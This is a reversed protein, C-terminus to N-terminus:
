KGDRRQRLIGRLRPMMKRVEGALVQACDLYVQESGGVPDRVDGRHTGSFESIVFTRGAAEPWLDTVTQRQAETMTLILDASVTRGRTLARARRGRLVLGMRKAAAVAYRSVGTGAGADTGASSVTVNGIERRALEAKLITEALPSRCTNGTCVFLISLDKKL